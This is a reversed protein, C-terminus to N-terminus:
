VDDFFVEEVVSDFPVARPNEMGKFIYFAESAFIIAMVGEEGVTAVVEPETTGMPSRTSPAPIWQPEPRM